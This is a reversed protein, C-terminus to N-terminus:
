GNRARNVAQRTIPEDDFVLNCLRSILADSAAPAPPLLGAVARILLGRNRSAPDSARGSRRGHSATLTPTADVAAREYISRAANGGADAIVRVSTALATIYQALLGSEVLAAVDEPNRGDRCTPDTSIVIRSVGPVALAAAAQDLTEACDRLRAEASSAAETSRELPVGMTVNIWADFLTMALRAAQAPAAEADADVLVRIAEDFGPREFFRGHTSSDVAERAWQSALAVVRARDNLNM